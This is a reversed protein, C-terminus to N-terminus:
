KAILAYRFANLRTGTGSCLLIGEECARTLTRWLSDPRPAPDFNPWRTLLEQRTLPEPFHRLIDCVTQLTPISAGRRPDDSLLSYDTGEANLEASIYQLTGPYRGVGTFTRSRTFRSGPPIQMDIIIDASAALPGRVRSRSKAASMQHGLLVATPLNSIDRLERLAWRFWKPDNQGCPFFSMVSDVVLLDFDPAHFDQGFGYVTDIFNHWSRRTPRDPRCFRLQPGFDL